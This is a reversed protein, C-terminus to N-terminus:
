ATTSAYNAIRNLWYSLQLKEMCFERKSYESLTKDLLERTVDSWSKVILVPLDEFMDDLPTSILIPICGLCLAEWTRHCDLGEGPPSVVFAYEIQKKWSALRCINQPEYYVLDKPIQDYAAQRSGRHLTFHFTTYATPIREIFPRMKKQLEMLLIEQTKPSCRPGWYMDNNAITHYDMGIPLYQMKPYEKPSATLNQSFWVILYENQILVRFAKQLLSYFPISSDSDGSVLIFRTRINPLIRSVFDLLASSCVYITDGDRLRDIFIHNVLVTSSVPANM